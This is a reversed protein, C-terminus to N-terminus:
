LFRGVKRMQNIIFVGMVDMELCVGEGSQLNKTFYFGGEGGFVLGGLRRM